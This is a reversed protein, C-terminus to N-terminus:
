ALVKVFEHLGVVTLPIPNPRVMPATLCGPRVEGQAQVKTRTTFWREHFELAQNLVHRFPRLPPSDDPGDM